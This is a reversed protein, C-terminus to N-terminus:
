SHNKILWEIPEIQVKKEYVIYNYFSVLFEEYIDVNKLIPIVITEDKKNNIIEDYIDFYYTPFLLRAFLYIYEQKSFNNYRLYTKLENSNFRKNFFANKIYESVDRVRSDIILNLPNYFEFSGLNLRIRKHSVSFIKNNDRINNVLYSIANEGLGIFYSLSDCLLPYEKGLQNIQYEYYDIKECWLKVWNDRLLPKDFNLDFTMRQFYGIDTLFVEKNIYNNKKILVYPVNNITTIVNKDKNLIIQHIFCGKSIMQLNLKYLLNVDEIPRNYQILHYEQNNIYFYYNNDKKILNDIRIEYYYNLTNKM